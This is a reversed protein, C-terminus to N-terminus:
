SEGRASLTETPPVLPDGASALEHAVVESLSWDYASLDAEAVFREAAEDSPLSPWPKRPESM